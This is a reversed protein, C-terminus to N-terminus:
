DAEWIAMTGLDATFRPARKSSITHAFVEPGPILVM